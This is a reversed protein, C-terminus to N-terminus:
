VNMVVLVKNTIIIGVLLSRSKGLLTNKVWDNTNGVMSPGGVPGFQNITRSCYDASIRISM